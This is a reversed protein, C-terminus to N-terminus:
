LLCLYIEGNVPYSLETTKGDDTDTINVLVQSFLTNRPKRFWLTYSGTNNEIEQKFFSISKPPTPASFDVLL